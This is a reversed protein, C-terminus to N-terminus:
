RSSGSGWSGGTAGSQVSISQMTAAKSKPLRLTLVGNEFTSQGTAPDVPFPLTISRAFRGVPLEQMWCTMSQGPSSQQSGTQGTTQANRMWDPTTFEGKFTLTNQNAQITLNDPSIGPLFARVILDNGYECVDLPITM